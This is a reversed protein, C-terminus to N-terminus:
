VWASKKFFKHSKPKIISVHLEMIIKQVFVPIKNAIVFEM